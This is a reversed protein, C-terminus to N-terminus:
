TEFHAAKKTAISTVVLRPRDRHIGVRQRPRRRDRDVGTLMRQETELQSLANRRFTNPTLIHMHM